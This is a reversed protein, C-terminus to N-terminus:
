EDILQPSIYINISTKQSTIMYNFLTCKNFILAYTLFLQM